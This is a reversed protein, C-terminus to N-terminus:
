FALSSATDVGIKLVLVANKLMKFICFKLIQRFCLCFVGRSGLFICNNLLFLSFFNNLLVKICNIM